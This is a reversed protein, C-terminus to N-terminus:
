KNKNWWKEFEDKAYKRHIMFFEKEDTKSMYAKWALEKCEAETYVKYSEKKTAM